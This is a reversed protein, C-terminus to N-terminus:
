NGNYGSGHQFAPLVVLTPVADTVGSLEDRACGLQDRREALGAPHGLLGLDMESRVDSCPAFAVLPEPQRVGM